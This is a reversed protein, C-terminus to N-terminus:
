RYIIDYSWICHFKQIGNTDIVKCFQSGFPHTMGYEAIVFALYQRITDADPDRFVTVAGIPQCRDDVIIHRDCIQINM